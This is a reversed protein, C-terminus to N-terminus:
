SSNPLEELTDGHTPSVDSCHHTSKKLLTLSFVFSAKEGLKPNNKSNNNEALNHNNKSKCTM